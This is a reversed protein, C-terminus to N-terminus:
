IREGGDRMEELDIGSEDITIFKMQYKKLEEPTFVLRWDIEYNCYFRVPLISNCLIRSLCEKSPRGSVTVNTSIIYNHCRMMRILDGSTNHKSAHHAVKCCVVEIPNDQSYGMETLAEIISDSSADGLLLMKMGEYELLVAISSRNSWTVMGQFESENLEEVSKAYDNRETIKTSKDTEYEQILYFEKISKDDPALVTLKLNGSQYCKGRIIGSKKRIKKNRLLLNLEEAQRWSIKTSNDKISVGAGSKHQMYEEDYNFWLEKIISYPLENWNFLSLIGSIHDSDFHTLILLEVTKDESVYKKIFSRLQHQCEKGIGGDIMITKEYDMGYQILICDGNQARLVKICLSM